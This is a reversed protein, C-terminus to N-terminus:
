FLKARLIGSVLERSELATAAYERPSVITFVSSCATFFPQLQVSQILQLLIGDFVNNLLFLFNKYIKQRTESTAWKGPEATPISTSATM